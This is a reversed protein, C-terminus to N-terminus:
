EPTLRTFKAVEARARDEVLFPVRDPFRRILENNAAGRDRAVLIPGDFRHGNFQYLRDIQNDFSDRDRSFLLIRGHARALSDATRLTAHRGPIGRSAYDTRVWPRHNDGGETWPLAVILQSVLVLAGLGWALKPWRDYIFVLMAATGLVLFPLLETYLRLGGYWYLVHVFPLLSFLAVRGWPIRFGAGVALATIPALMGIPIFTTNLSVLREVLFRLGEIPLYQPGDAPLGSAPRMVGRMGFGLDYMGPHLVQYAVALPGGLVTDNYLFFLAAPVIGGVIVCGIMQLALRREHRFADLLMWLGISVGITVGTLPRVTVVFGLLAGAAVWLGVRRTGSSDIGAHLCWTAGLLSAIAAAHSMYGAHSMIFYQSTALLVAAVAGTRRGCIRAGVAYILAVSATGLLISAWWELGAYRFVSLLAPWGPPYMGYLHGDLYGVKRMVFFPALEADVSWTLQPFVMWRSQTLYVAEDSVIAYKGAFVMHAITLGVFTVALLAVSSRASPRWSGPVTTPGGETDELLPLVVLMAIWGCLTPLLRNTVEILPEEYGLVVASFVPAISLVGAVVVATRLAGSPMLYRRRMWALAALVVLYIVIEQRMRIPLLTVGELILLVLSGLAILTAFRKM